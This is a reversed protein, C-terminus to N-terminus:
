VALRGSLPRLPYSSPPHPPLPAPPELHPDGAPHVVSPDDSAWHCSQPHETARTEGPLQLPTHTCQTAANACVVWFRNTLPATSLTLVPSTALAAVREM